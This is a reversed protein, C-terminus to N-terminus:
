RFPAPEPSYLASVREGMSFADLLAGFALKAAPSSQLSREGPRVTDATETGLTRAGSELSREGPRVTDATETRLARAGSELSRDGPRVTDATETGLSRATRDESPHGPRASDPSEGAPPATTSTGPSTGHAADARADIVEAKDYGGDDSIESGEEARERALESTATQLIKSAEAAVRRDQASPNAPALAAMGVVRMKDITAQPNGAVPSLDINVNGSVAYRKHDPGTITDYHPRGRAYAGATRAHAEEHARVEQDRRTLSRVAGREEETLEVPSESTEQREADAVDAKEASGEAQAAEQRSQATPSETRQDPEGTRPTPEQTSKETAPEPASEPTQIDGALERAEASVSVSDVARTGVRAGSEGSRQHPSLPEVGTIGAVDVHM